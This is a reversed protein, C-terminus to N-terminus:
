VRTLFGLIYRAALGFVLFGGLAVAVGSVANKGEAMDIGTAIDGLGAAHSTASVTALIAVTGLAKGWKKLNQNNIM